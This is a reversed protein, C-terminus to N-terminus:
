IIKIPSNECLLGGVCWFVELGDVCVGWSHVGGLWRGNGAENVLVDDGDTGGGM